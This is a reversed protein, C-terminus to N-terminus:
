PSYLCYMNVLFHASNLVYAFESKIVDTGKKNTLNVAFKDDKDVFHTAPKIEAAIHTGTERGDFHLQKMVDDVIGKQRLAQLIDAESITGKARKENQGSLSEALVNKIRSQVDIQLLIVLPCM